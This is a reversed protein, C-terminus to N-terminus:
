AITVNTIHCYGNADTTWYVNVNKGEGRATNVTNEVPTYISDTELVYAFGSKPCINDLGGLTILFNGPSQTFSTSSTVFTNEIYSSSVGSGAFVPLACGVAAVAVISRLCKCILSKM